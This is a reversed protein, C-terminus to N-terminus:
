KSVIFSQVSGKDTIIIRLFPFCYKFNSNVLLVIIMDVGFIHQQYTERSLILVIKFKIEELLILCFYETVVYIQWVCIIEMKKFLKDEDTIAYTPCVQSMHERTRILTHTEIM